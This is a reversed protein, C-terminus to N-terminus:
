RAIQHSLLAMPALPKLRKSPMKWPTNKPMTSPLMWRILIWQVQCCIFVTFGMVQCPSPSAPDSIQTSGAAAAGAVDIDKLVILNAGMAKAITPYHCHASAGLAVLPYNLRISTSHGVDSEQAVQGNVIQDTNHANHSAEIILSELIANKSAANEGKGQHAFASDLLALSSQVTLREQVMTAFHEANAAQPTGAGKRQRAMLEAAKLAITLDYGSFAGTILAADTPTFACIAILGRSVLRDIAGLALRTEALESIPKLGQDRCTIAMRTESRTLWTPPEGEFLPLVFRADTDSAVPNFLPHRAM